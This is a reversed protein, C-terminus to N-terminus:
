ISKPIMDSLRILLFNLGFFLLPALQWVIAKIYEERKRLILSQFLGLFCLLIAPLTMWHVFNVLAIYLPNTAGIASESSMGMVLGGFLALPICLVSLLNQTILSITKLKKM